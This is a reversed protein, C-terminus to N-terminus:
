KPMGVTSDNQETIMEDTFAVDETFIWGEIQDHYFVDLAIAMLHYTSAGRETPHFLLRICEGWTKKTLAVIYRPFHIASAFSLADEKDSFYCNVYFIEATAEVLSQNVQLTMYRAFASGTRIREVISPHKTTLLRVDFRYTNNHSRISIGFSVIHRIARWEPYNDALSKTTWKEICNVM